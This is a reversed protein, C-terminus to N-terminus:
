ASNIMVNSALLRVIALLSRVIVFWDFIPLATLYM